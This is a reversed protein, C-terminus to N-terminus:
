SNIMPGPDGSYIATTNATMEQLAKALADDTMLWSGETSTTVEGLGRNRDHTRTRTGAPKEGSGTGM